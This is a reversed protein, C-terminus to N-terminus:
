DRTVIFIKIVEQPHERRAALQLTPMRPTANRSYPPHALSPQFPASFFLSCCFPLGRDRREKSIIIAGSVTARSTREVNRKEERRM